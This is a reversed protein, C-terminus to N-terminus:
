NNSTVYESSKHTVTQTTSSGIYLKTSAVNVNNQKLYISSAYRTGTTAYFVGGRLPHAQAVRNNSDSFFRCGFLIDYMQSLGVNINNGNKNYRDYYSSM